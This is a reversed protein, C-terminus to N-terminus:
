DVSHVFSMHLESHRLILAVYEDKNKLRGLFPHPRTPTETQFRALAQRLHRLGEEVSVGAEPMLTSVNEPVKIGARMTERLFRKKVLPAIFWRAWWPVRFDGFGDFCADAGKALHRLIQGYTWNGTTRHARGALEEAERVIDDLSEYRLTRRIKEATAM